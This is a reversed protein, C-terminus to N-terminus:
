DPYGSIGPPLDTERNMAQFGGDIIGSTAGITIQNIIGCGHFLFLSIVVAFAKAYSTLPFITNRHTSRNSQFELM